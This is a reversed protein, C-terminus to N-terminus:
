FYCGTNSSRSKEREKRPEQQDKMQGDGGTQFGTWGELDLAVMEMSVEESELHFLERAEQDGYLVRNHDNSTM